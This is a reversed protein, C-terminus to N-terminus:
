SKEPSSLNVNLQQSFCFKLFFLFRKEHKEFASTFFSYSHNLNTQQQSVFRIFSASFFLLVSVFAFCATATTKTKFVCVCLM